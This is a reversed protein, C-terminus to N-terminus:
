LSVATLKSLELRFESNDASYINTAGGSASSSPTFTIVLWEDTKITRLAELGIDPLKQKDYANNTQDTHFVGLLQKVTEKDPSVKYIKLTGDMETPTTGDDVPKHYYFKQNAKAGGFALTTGSPVQYEVVTYEKNTTTAGSDSHTVGSTNETLIFPSAVIQAQAM